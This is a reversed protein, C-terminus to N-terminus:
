KRLRGNVGPASVTVEIKEGDPYFRTSFVDKGGNLFVEVCSADVIVRMDTLKTIERGRMTRGSGLRSDQFEMRFIQEKKDYTLWLDKALTIKVNEELKDLDPLEIEFAQGLSGVFEKQFAEEKTWYSNLERIPNQCLVGDKVSLERPLTLVHQWGDEATPNTYFEDVDAMGMWAIQIRRGDETEFTQPAYFDFGGDLERFTDNVSATRFNGDLFTTVSQYVNNWRLGDAEVGQPSISLVTYGDLEYLDPCEWMFGFPKPSKLRHTCFWKVGDGSTFLLVVGQDEKTRAGQVMYWRGNKKWVKPDRVHCTLDMPYDENTLLLEKKEFHFGDRSTVRVTNSQRGQNIYDYDGMEKVNGTYYLYMHDEEIVASGSYVGHCDYPQDPSLPVDELKWHLLDRSTCHAWFKLGGKEDFPSYQYFAHYIGRYQCLGNPDNLWGVPPAIHFAPRWRQKLDQEEKLTRSILKGWTRYLANM